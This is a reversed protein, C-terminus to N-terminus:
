YLIEDKNEKKQAALEMKDPRGSRQHECQSNASRQQGDVGQSDEETELEQLTCIVRRPLNESETKTVHGSKPSDLPWPGPGGGTPAGGFNYNYKILGTRQDKIHDV